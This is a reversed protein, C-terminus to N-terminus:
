DRATALASRAVICLAQMPTDPSCRTQAHRLVRVVRSCEVSDAGRPGAHQYQAHADVLGGAHHM